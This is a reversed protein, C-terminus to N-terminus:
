IHTYQVYIYLTGNPLVRAIIQWVTDLKFFPKFYFKSNVLQQKKDNFIM